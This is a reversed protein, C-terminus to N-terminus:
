SSSSLIVSNCFRSLCRSAFLLSGSVGHFDKVSGTGICGGGSIFGTTGGTTFIWSGGSIFIGSRGFGISGSGPITTSCCWSTIVSLRACILPGTFVQSGVGFGCSSAPGEKKSRLGSRSFNIPSFRTLLIPIAMKTSAIPKKTLYAMSLLQTPGTPLTPM